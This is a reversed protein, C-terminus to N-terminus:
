GVGKCCFFEYFSTQVLLIADVALCLSKMVMENDLDKPTYQQLSPNQLESSKDFQRKGFQGAPSTPLARDLEVLTPLLHLLCFPCPFIYAFSTM